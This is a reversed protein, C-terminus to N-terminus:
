ATSRHDFVLAMSIGGVYLVESTGLDKLYSIKFHFSYIALSQFPREIWKNWFKMNSFKPILLPSYIPPIKMANTNPFLDAAPEYAPSPALSDHKHFFKESKLVSFLSSLFVFRHFSFLGGRGGELLPTFVGGGM